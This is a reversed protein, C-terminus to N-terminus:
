KASESEGLKPMTPVVPLADAMQVRAQRVLGEGYIEIFGVAAMHNFADDPGYTAMAPDYLSLASERGVVAAHGASLRLRVDGSVLRQNGGLYHLLDRHFASFWQGNYILDAYYQSVVSKFRAQEKSLTLTELASHAMHLMVAAPAEYVERTKIGVLRNEVHDIRGIGYAGGLSNLREIIELSSLTQGDLRQPRGKEFGVTVYASETPADAVDVTWEFADSPPEQWPDELAGAEVSRGWVNQDISYLKRGVSIPIGHREAYALEEDRCMGWERAPAIVSLEPGLIRATIEFRVQDNGKGTCGHAVTTAGHERAVDVLYKSILPRGLATALPYQGEYLANAQLAPIVFHEVFTERGDIVVSEAAGLSRAKEVIGELDAGQGIDVTMTVVEYGRDQLWKVMVSTDLGGSFALVVRQKM